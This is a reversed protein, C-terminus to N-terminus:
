IFKEVINGLNHISQLLEKENGVSPNFEVIDMSVVKTKDNIKKSLEIITNVSLGDNAHVGTSPFHKPDLVDVDFSFHVPNEGIWDLIENVVNKNNQKNKNRSNQNIENSTYNKINYKKTMHIEDTDLDRIGYYCLNNINLKPIDTKLNKSLDTMYYVPMGHCNKTVSTDSTHIDAHADVWVVKLDPYIDLMMPITGMSIAHDGGINILFDGDKYNKINEKCKNYITNQIYEPEHNHNLISSSISKNLIGNFRQTKKNNFNYVNKILNNLIQPAYSVGINTQGKWLPLSNIFLKSM